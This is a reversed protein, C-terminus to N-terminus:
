YPKGNNEGDMKPTNGRNKSVGLFPAMKCQAFCTSPARGGVLQEMHEDSPVAGFLFWGRAKSFDDLAVQKRLNECWLYWFSSRKLSRICGYM